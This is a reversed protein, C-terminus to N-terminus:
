RGVERRLRECLVHLIGRVIEINGAMLEAFAERDLRLLRTPELAAISALRPEPDLLALDGFIDRPGLEGITREGDYVRVRGSVIIYLSDGLDGKEFVVGGEAVEVEELIGAVETLVEESARSFMDVAKLTIVREVTLMPDGGKRGEWGEVARATERVLISAASAAAEASEHGLDLGLRAAEYLAITRTWPTTWEESRKAVARLRDVPALRRTGTGGGGPKWDDFLPLVAGRLAAPVALEVVELAYARKERSAGSLHERARLFPTPEGLFSLVLLVRDRSRTAEAELAAVVSALGPDVSLDLAGELGWAADDAERRVLDVLAPSEAEDARYGCRRLAALVAHRVTEDHSGIRARLFAIAEPGGIRGAVSAIRGRVEPGGGEWAAELSAMARAGCSALARAAAGSLVPDALAEALRPWLAPDDLRPAAALAARRVEPSPDGLLPELARALDARGADGLVAAAWARRTASEAASDRLLRDVVDDRPPGKRRLLGVFAGRRVDLDDHDLAAALANASAQDDYAALGELSAGRVGPDSDHLALRLLADRAGVSRLARLRRAAARRVEPSAHRSLDLVLSTQAAQPTRDLLELAFVVDGPSGAKVAERVAALTRPDALSLSEADALRSKLAEVLAAAYGKGGRRALVLWVLFVPLMVWAFRTPDYPALADFALLVLGAAGVMVPTVLTEVAVQAALRDERRLPQYLVKLSPNDIPHKLTKYAGQNLIVLWFAAAAGGDVLGAAVLGLTLMLHTAPLVLLGVRVGYRSLLPGSVFLRTALSAVQTAGSFLGFFSALRAADDARSKLEALFAYDVFYKGLVGAAVMSLMVVLYRQRLLTVLGTGGQSTRRESSVATAVTARPLLALVLALCATLGAASLVVLNAVGLPRVLLPVSLSGVIRAAVEGSGVLGFLRKAQRVDYLRTAVAWYELDTLASLVRYFVLLGFVLGTAATVALGARLAVVSALLFAVTGVMLGRFTSRAQLRTYIVGTLTNAVAAAIYVWPLAGSSFRTLFLASAATEFFVTSTGMAFSHLVMLTVSRGEGARVDLFSAARGALSV